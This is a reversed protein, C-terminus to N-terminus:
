FLYSEPYEDLMWELENSIEKETMTEVRKIGSSEIFDTFLCALKDPTLRYHKM